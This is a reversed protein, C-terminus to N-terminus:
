AGCRDPFSNKPVIILTITCFVWLFPTSHRSPPMRTMESVVDVLVTLGTSPLHSSSTLSRVYGPLGCHDQLEFEVSNSDRIDLFLLKNVQQSNPRKMFPRTYTIVKEKPYNTHDTWSKSRHSGGSPPGRLVQPAEAAAAVPWSPFKEHGPGYKISKLSSADRVPPAPASSRDSEESNTTHQSVTTQLYTTTTSYTTSNSHVGSRQLNPTSHSSM